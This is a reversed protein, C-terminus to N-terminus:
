ENAGMRHLRAVAEREYNGPTGIAPNTKPRAPAAGKDDYNGDLVKAMNADALLWDFTAQWNRSNGGKLFASAEAKEFLTRFDDLTYGSSFRGRIAKKRSESLKRCQPYSVCIEGFMRRVDEYPAASREGSASDEKETETESKSKSETETETKSPMNRMRDCANANEADWRKGANQKNKECRDEYNQFFRDIRGRFVPYVFRENGSCKESAGLRGYELLATLLRGREADGLLELADLDDLFFPIYDPRKKEAM